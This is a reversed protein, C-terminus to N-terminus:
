LCFGAEVQPRGERRSLVIDGRFISPFGAPLSGLCVNPMIVIPVKFAKNLGEVSVRPHEFLWWFCSFRHIMIGLEAMLFISVLTAWLRVISGSRSDKGADKSENRIDQTGGFDIM